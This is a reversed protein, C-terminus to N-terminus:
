IPQCKTKKNFKKNTKTPTTSKINDDINKDDVVNNNDIDDNVKTLM